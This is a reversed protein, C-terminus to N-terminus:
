KGPIKLLWQVLLLMSPVLIMLAVKWLIGNIARQMEGIGNWILGIDKENRDIKVSQEAQTNEVKNLRRGLGNIAAESM